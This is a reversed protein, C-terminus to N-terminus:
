DRSAEKQGLRGALWVWGAGIFMLINTVLLLLHPLEPDRLQLHEYFHWLAVGGYGLGAALVLVYGSRGTVIGIGRAAAAIMLLAGLWVVAHARLQDTATEFEPHTAHWLLDIIRGAVFVSVGIWLLRTSRRGAEHNM